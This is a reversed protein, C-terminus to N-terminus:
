LSHLDIHIPKSTKYKDKLPHTLGKLAEIISTNIQKGKFKNSHEREDATALVINELIDEDTLLSNKLLPRLEHRKKDHRLGTLIANLFKNQM